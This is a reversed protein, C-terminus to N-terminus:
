CRNIRSMNSVLCTLDHHIKVGSALVVVQVDRLATTLAVRQAMNRLLLSLCARTIAKNRFSCLDLMVDSTLDGHNHAKFVDTGLEQPSVINKGFATDDLQRMDTDFGKFIETLDAINKADNKDSLRSSTISAIGSMASMISPMKLRALGGKGTEIKEFIDEWVRIVQSIRWNLRTNFFRLLLNLADSRLAHKLGAENSVDSARDPRTDDRTDLVAFLSKFISSMKSFSQQQEAERDDVFFGFGVLEDTLSIMASIMELQGIRPQGNLSPKGKTDACDAMRPLEELLFSELDKFGTTCVPILAAQPQVTMDLDSKEPQVRSWVRTYLVQPTASQPDRDVYLKSMLTFYRAKLLYPLQTSAM